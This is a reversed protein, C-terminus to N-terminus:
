FRSLYINKENSKVTASIYKIYIQINNNKYM